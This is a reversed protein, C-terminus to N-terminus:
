YQSSIASLCRVRSTNPASRRNVDFVTLNLSKNM